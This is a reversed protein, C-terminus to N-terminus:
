AQRSHPPSFALIAWLPSARRQLSRPYRPEDYPTHDKWCRYLIRIWKYPLARMRVM